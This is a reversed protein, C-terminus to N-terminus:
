AKWKRAIAAWIYKVIKNADILWIVEYVKSVVAMGFLGVLFGILGAANDIKLWTALPATGVYSLTAGGLAMTLKEYWSGTMFRLSVLAGAIGAAFQTLGIEKIDSTPM